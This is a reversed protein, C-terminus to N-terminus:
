KTRSAIRAAILSLSLYCFGSLALAFSSISAADEAFVPDGIEGGLLVTSVFFTLISLVVVTEAVTRLREVMVANWGFQLKV